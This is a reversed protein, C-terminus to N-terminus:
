TPGGHAKIVVNSRDSTSNIQKKIYESGLEHYWVCIIVEQLTKKNTPKRDAIKNSM